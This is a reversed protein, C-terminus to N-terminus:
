GLGGNRTEADSWKFICLGSKANSDAEDRTAWKARTARYIGKVTSVNDMTQKAVTMSTGDGAVSRVREM